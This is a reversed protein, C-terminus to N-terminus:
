FLQDFQLLDFGLVVLVCAIAALLFIILLIVFLLSRSSRGRKQEAQSSVRDSSRYVGPGPGPAAPMQEQQTAELETAQSEAEPGDAWLRGPDSEMRVDSEPEDEWSFGEGPQIEETGKEEQWDIEPEGAPEVEEEVWYDDQPAEFDGLDETVAEDGEVEGAQPEEVVDGPETEWTEVPVEKIEPPETPHLISDLRSRADEHTPNLALVRNLCDVKQNQETVAFSMLWWARESRPEKKLYGALLSRAENQRGEELHKEAEDLVAEPNDDM